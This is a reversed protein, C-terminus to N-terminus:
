NPPSKLWHPSWPNSYHLTNLNTIESNKYSRTTDLKSKLSHLEM